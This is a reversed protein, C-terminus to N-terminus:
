LGCREPKGIFSDERLGGGHPIRLSHILAGEDVVWLGRYVLGRAPEGFQTGVSVPVGGGSGRAVM